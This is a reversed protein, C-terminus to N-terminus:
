PLGGEIRGPSYGVLSCGASLGLGEPEKPLREAPGGARRYEPLPASTHPPFKEIEGSDLQALDVLEKLTSWVEPTRSSPQFLPIGRFIQWNLTKLKPLNFDFQNAKPARYVRQLHISQSLFSLNEVEICNELYPRFGESMVFRLPCLQLEARQVCGWSPPLGGHHFQNNNQEDYRQSNQGDFALFPFSANSRSKM